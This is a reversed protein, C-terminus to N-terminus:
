EQGSCYCCYISQKRHWGVLPGDPSLQAPNVAEEEAEEKQKVTAITGIKQHLDILM